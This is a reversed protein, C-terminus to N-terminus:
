YSCEMNPMVIRRFALCNALSARWEAMVGRVPRIWLGTSARRPSNPTVKM